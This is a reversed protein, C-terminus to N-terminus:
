NNKNEKLPPTTGRLTIVAIDGKTGLRIPPGWLSLGSSVWVHSHSWKRYGHSQEYIYDTIYNGPWVQGHHTHGSIQIDAGLNNKKEVERPNHDVLITPRTSDALALLKKLKLRKKNFTDDRLILQVGCPLEVISDCLMKIPTQKLFKECEEYGSIYEHNGPAMYIGQPAQLLSLEEHMAANQVPKVCNDILDGAILIIDPNQSNIIDVFHKLTSKGTGYGLHLDSIVAIKLSGNMPKDVTIDIPVIQPNRYNYHGYCLLATAIIAAHITTCKFRKYILRTTDFIISALATYIIFIVWLSGTRFMIGSLTDPINENRLGIALFFSAAAMWFLLSAAIKIFINQKKIAKILRIFLYGNSILYLIPLLLFFIYMAPSKANQM